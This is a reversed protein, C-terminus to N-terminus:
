SGGAYIRVEVEEKKCRTLKHFDEGQLSARSYSKQDAHRRSNNIVNGARGNNGIGGCWITKRGILPRKHTHFSRRGGKLVQILLFCRMILVVLVRMKMLLCLEQQKTFAFICCDVIMEVRHLVFDLSFFGWCDFGQM